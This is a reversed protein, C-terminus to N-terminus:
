FRVAVGAGLFMDAGRDNLSFGGHLDLQVNHTPLYSIGGNLFNVPGSQGGYEGYYEIYASRDGELPLSIGVANAYVAEDNSEKILVTGFWDLAASHSWFAGFTPEAENASVADDGIPISLGAFLALPVSAASDNVQWKVGISADTVASDSNGGQDTVSLGSWGVQLELKEAIGYRMLALPLLHEDFDPTGDLQSFQYGAELQFVSKGLALPSSSFGPREASIPDAYAADQAMANPLYVSALLVLLTRYTTKMKKGTLHVTSNGNM